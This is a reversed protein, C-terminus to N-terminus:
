ICSTQMTCDYLIAPAYLDLNLVVPICVTLVHALYSHGILYDMVYMSSWMNHTGTVYQLSNEFQSIESSGCRGRIVNRISGLTPATCPINFTQVYVIIIIHM